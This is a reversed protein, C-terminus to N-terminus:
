PYKIKLANRVECIFRYKSSETPTKHKSWGQVGPVDGLQFNCQRQRRTTQNVSLRREYANCSVKVLEAMSTKDIRIIM